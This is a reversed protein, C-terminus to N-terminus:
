GRAHRAAERGAIRGFVTGITMGIGAPYGQGLINAAMISGAAFLNRSPRDGTMLVRADADVKVGLYTFTIGPRLPYGCFPPTEIPLARQSKAPGAQGIEWRAPGADPRMGARAAANFTHVTAALAQADLALEGALAAITPARAPPYISPRFLRQASADFIAYAIQGPCEAVLRGWVAYHRPGIEAGEDHFRRANRDVVISYPVCDLRTVIGGDFKPARADVAVMHCQAPDGMPAVGQALLNTLVQGKAYPTGRILFHDAAEGWHQRLQGINAQFSGSAVVVSKAQITAPVGRELVAAGCASGDDIHLSVVEADYRIDVGLREATRYYANLLAKGGGLLFATKRSPPMARDCSRQFVGGCSAMWSMIGASERIMARALPENTNAGNVRALDRWYEDEGYMEHLFASPADHMVRLNRAHRTNGGRQDRPAQELLLVSAGAQRATIAACLGANGGGVVLVDWGGAPVTGGGDGARYRGPMRVRPRVAPGLQRARAM